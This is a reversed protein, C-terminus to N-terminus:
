SLSYRITEMFNHKIKKCENKSDKFLSKCEKMEKNYDVKCQKTENGENKNMERSQNKEREATSNASGNSEEAMVFVIRFVLLGIILLAFLSKKMYEETFGEIYLNEM